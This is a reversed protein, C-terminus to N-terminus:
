FSLWKTAIFFGIVSILGTVFTGWALDVLTVTLPWNATTSYNTLDYTAYAILGFLAGLILAKQWSGSAASPLIVFVVVGALYLLYFLIAAWWIPSPSLLAGLEKKYFNNAVVVIWLMDIGFFIPALCLYLQVQALTIM